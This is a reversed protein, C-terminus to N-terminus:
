YDVVHLLGVAGWYEVGEPAKEEGAEKAYYRMIAEVQLGHKILAESENYEKLLALAKERM